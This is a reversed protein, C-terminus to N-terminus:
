INSAHHHSICSLTDARVSTSFNQVYNSHFSVKLDNVVSGDPRMSCDLFSDLDTDDTEETDSAVSTHPIPTLDFKNMDNEVSKWDILSNWGDVYAYRHDILMCSILRRNELCADIRVDICKLLKAAHASQYKEM